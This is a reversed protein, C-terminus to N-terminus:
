WKYIIGQRGGLFIAETQKQMRKDSSHGQYGRMGQMDEAAKGQTAM